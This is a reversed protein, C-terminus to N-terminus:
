RIKGEKRFTSFLGRVERYYSVFDKFLRRNQDLRKNESFDVLLRYYLQMRGSVERYFKIDTKTMYIDDIDLFYDLKHKLKLVKTKLGGRYVRYSSLCDSVEAVGYEMFSIRYDLAEIDAATVISAILNGIESMANHAGYPDGAKLRTNTTKLIGSVEDFVEQWKKKKVFPRSPRNYYSSYIELWGSLTKKLSSESNKRDKVLLYEGLDDIDYAFANIRRDFDGYRSDKFLFPRIGEGCPMARQSFVMLFLLSLLFAPFVKISEGPGGRRFSYRM